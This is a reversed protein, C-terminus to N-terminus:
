PQAIDAIFTDAYYTYTVTDQIDDFWTPVTPSYGGFLIVKDLAENYTCSMEARPSPVNRHLRERTWTEAKIDWSWLDGYGYSYFGGNAQKHIM